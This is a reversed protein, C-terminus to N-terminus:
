YCPLALLNDPFTPSLVQGVLTRKPDFASMRMDRTGAETPTGPLHGQIAAESGFRVNRSTLPMVSRMHRDMLFALKGDFIM